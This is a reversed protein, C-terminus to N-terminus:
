VNFVSIKVKKFFGKKLDLKEEQNNKQNPNESM